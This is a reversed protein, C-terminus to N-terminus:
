SGSLKWWQLLFKEIIKMLTSHGTRTGVKLEVATQSGARCIVGSFENADLADNLLWWPRYKKLTHLFEWKGNILRVFHCFDATIPISSQDGPLHVTGYFHKHCRQGVPVKPVGRWRSCYKCAWQDGWVEANKLHRSVGIGLANENWIRLGESSCNDGQYM